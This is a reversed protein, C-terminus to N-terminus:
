WVHRVGINIGPVFPHETRANFPQNNDLYYSIRPEMYISYDRSLKYSIGLAAQISWQLGDIRENSLTTVAINSESSYTNQVYHSLLGKEVMGGTSFYIDWMGRSYPYFNVALNVPIGVYHLSLSADRRPIKNEFASYLYTYTLGSEISLYNNLLKRMSLGVSIPPRHTIQSFDNSSLMDSSLSPSTNKSINSYRLGSSANDAMVADLTNNAAYLRGGSSLHLAISRNKRKLTSVPIYEQGELAELMRSGFTGSRDKTASIDKSGSSEAIEDITEVPLAVDPEHFALEEPVLSERHNRRQEPQIQVSPLRASSLNEEAPVNETIREAHNSLQVTNDYYSEKTHYSFLIALIISAAVSIGSIWSWLLIKNRPQTHLRKELEEWSGEEIFLSYNALKNGIIRSFHDNERNKDTTKM